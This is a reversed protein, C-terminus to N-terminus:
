KRARPTAVAVALLCGILLVSYEMGNRGAGVVFWGEPFHVLAIGFALQGAFYSALIPVLRGAALVPTGVLELVTVTWAIAPGFPFGKGDLFEGFPAVGGNRVRAVGHVFLLAAVVIRIAALGHAPTIRRALNTDM